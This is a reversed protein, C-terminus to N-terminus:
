CDAGTGIVDDGGELGELEKPPDDTSADREGGQQAGIAEAV